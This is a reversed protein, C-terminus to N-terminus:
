PKCSEAAHATAQHLAEQLRVPSGLLLLFACVFGHVASTATSLKSKM